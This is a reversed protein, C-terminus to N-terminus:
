YLVFLPLKFEHQFQASLTLTSALLHQVGTNNCRLFVSFVGCSM